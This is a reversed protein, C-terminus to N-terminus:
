PVNAVSARATAEVSTSVTIVGEAPALQKRHASRVLFGKRTIGAM